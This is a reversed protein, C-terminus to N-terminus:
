VLLSLFNDSLGSLQLELQSESFLGIVMDQDGLNFLGDLSGLSNGLLNLLSYNLLAVLVKFADELLQVGLLVLLCCLLDSLEDLLELFGSFTDRLQSSLNASFLGYTGAFSIM